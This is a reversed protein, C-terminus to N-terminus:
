QWRWGFTCGGKRGIWCPCKNGFHLSGQRRSNYISSARSAVVTWKSLSVTGKSGVSPGCLLISLQPKPTGPLQFENCCLSLSTLSCALAIPIFNFELFVFRIINLGVWTRCATGKIDSSSPCGRGTTLMMLSRPSRMSESKIHHGNTVSRVERQLDLTQLRTLSRSAPASM